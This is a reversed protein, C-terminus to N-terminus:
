KKGGGERLFVARPSPGRPLWGRHKDARSHWMCDCQGGRDRPCLTVRAWTEPPAGPEAQCQWAPCIAVSLRCGSRGPHLGATGVAGGALPVQRGVVPAKEPRQQPALAKHILATRLSTLFNPFSLGPRQPPPFGPFLTDAANRVRAPFKHPPIRSTQFQQTGVM